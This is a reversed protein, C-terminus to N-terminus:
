GHSFSRLLHANNTFITSAVTCAQSFLDFRDFNSLMGTVGTLETALVRHPSLSNSNPRTTSATFGCGTTSVSRCGRCSDSYPRSDTSQALHFFELNCYIKM